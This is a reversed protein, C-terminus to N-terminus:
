LLLLKRNRIWQTRNFWDKLCQNLVVWWIFVMESFFQVLNQQKFKKSHFSKIRKIVLYNYDLKSYKLINEIKVPIKIKIISINKCKISIFRVNPGQQM